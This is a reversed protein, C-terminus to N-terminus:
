DAHPASLRLAISSRKKISAMYSHEPSVKLSLVKLGRLAPFLRRFGLLAEMEWYYSRIYGLELHRVLHRNKGCQMLLLSLGRIDRWTEIINQGYLIPAAENSIQRCTSLIKPTLGCHNLCLKRPSGKPYKFSLTLPEGKRNCLALEYITNRLEAPLGLFSARTQSTRQEM